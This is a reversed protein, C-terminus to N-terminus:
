KSFINFFKEFLGMKKSPLNLIKHNNLYYTLGSKCIDSDTERYYNISNFGFKDDIYFSNSDFLSSGEGILFLQSEKSFNHKFEIKSKEYILDIIEQIRYLIVKKLLDISINKEKFEKMRLSRDKDNDKYSFETESRNFFKKIKEADELSIRFIKSIDKTIHFSGIPITHISIIKSNKYNIFSTRELGIDLFSISKLNLKKTYSVTKVYSTCFIKLININKEKFKNTFKDILLKPYLIFKLDVKLNSIKNKEKPLEFYEEDDIIYKNVISHIISYKSYNSNMLHFLEKLIKNNAIDLNTKKGLSKSYSIDVCHLKSTDKILIINEIHSGIKKEARKIIENIKEFNSEFNKEYDVILNESFYAELKKDFVTFRVKSNGFDLINLFEDEYM